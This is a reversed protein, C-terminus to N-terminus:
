NLIARRRRICPPRRAAKAKATGDQRPPELFCTRRCGCSNTPSLASMDPRRWQACSHSMLTTSMELTWLHRHRLNCLRLRPLCLVASPTSSPFRRRSQSERRITSTSTKRRSAPLAAPHNRLPPWPLKQPISPCFAHRKIASPACHQGKVLSSNGFRRTPWHAFFLSLSRSATM